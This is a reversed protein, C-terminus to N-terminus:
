RGEEDDIILRKTLGERSALRISSSLSIKTTFSQHLKSSVVDNQCRLIVCQVDLIPKRRSEVSANSERRTSLVM